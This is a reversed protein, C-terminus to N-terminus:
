ALLPQYNLDLLRQLTGDQNRVVPISNRIRSSDSSHSQSTSNNQNNITVPVITPSTALDQKEANIQEIQQTLTQLMNTKIQGPRITGISPNTINSAVIEIAERESNKTEPVKNSLTEVKINPSNSIKEAVKADASKKKSSPAVANIIDGVLEGGKEGMFYGGIGGIVSGIAAGIPGGIAGTMAGAKAGLLAGSVKGGIKSYEVTKQDPNLSSDQNVKYAEYAGLGLTLPTGLIKLGLNKASQLFGGKTEVPAIAGSIKSLNEKTTEIKSIKDLQSSSSVSTSNASSLSTTTSSAVTPSIKTSEPVSPSLLSPTSVASVLGLAKLPGPARSFVNKIAATAGKVGGMNKWVNSAAAAGGGIANKVGGWIGGAASKAGHLISGAASKAGGLIKGGLKSTLAKIGTYGMIAKVMGDVLTKLTEGKTSKEGLRNSNGIEALTQLVKSRKSELEDEKKQLENVETNKEIKKLTKIVKGNLDLLEVLNENSKESVDLNNKSIEIIQATSEKTKDSFGLLLTSTKNSTSPLGSLKELIKLLNHNTESFGEDMTEILEELLDVDMEDDDMEDNGLNNENIAPTEPKIFTKKTKVKKEDSKLLDFLKNVGRGFFKPMIANVINKRSFTETVRGTLDESFNIIDEKLNNTLRSLEETVKKLKSEERPM